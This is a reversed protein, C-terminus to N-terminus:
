GVRIQRKTIVEPADETKQQEKWIVRKMQTTSTLEYLQEVEQCFRGMELFNFRTKATNKGDLSIRNAIIHFHDHDKDAHRFAVLQNNEMGFRQAFLQCIEAMTETNIKEGVPFSFVQHWVPKEIRHNLNATRQMREAMKELNLLTKNAGKEQRLNNVTSVPVQQFYVLEGRVQSRDLSLNPRTAYYCYELTGLFSTGISAVKGIM